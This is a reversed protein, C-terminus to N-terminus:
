IQDGLDLGQQGDLRFAGPDYGASLLITRVQCAGTDRLRKCYKHLSSADETLLFPIREHCAQAILKIDDRAVPRTTKDDRLDFLCLFDGSLAPIRSNQHGPASDFWRCM